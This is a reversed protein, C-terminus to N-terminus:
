GFEGVRVQCSVVYQLSKRCAAVLDRRARDVDVMAQM